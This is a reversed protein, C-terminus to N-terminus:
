AARRRRRSRSRLFAGGGCAAIGAPLMAWTAPEPM